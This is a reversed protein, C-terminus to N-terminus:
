YFLPFIGDVLVELHGAVNGDGQTLVIASGLKM